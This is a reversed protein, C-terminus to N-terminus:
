DQKKALYEAVAKYGQSWIHLREEEPYESIARTEDNLRILSSWSCNGDNKFDGFTMPVKFTFEFTFGGPEAYVTSVEFWGRNNGITKIIKSLVEPSIKKEIFSTYPGPIGLGEIYLSHDERVVGANLDNAAQQASFKAIELSSEAQIEPYDKDTSLLEIGYKDFTQQAAKIKGKNRTLLYIKMILNYMVIM